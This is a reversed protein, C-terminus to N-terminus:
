VATKSEKAMEARLRTLLERSRKIDEIASAIAPRYDREVAVSVSVGAEIQRIRERSCGGRYFQAVDALSLSHHVRENSNRHNRKKMKM